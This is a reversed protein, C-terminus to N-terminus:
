KVLKGRERGSVRKEANERLKKLGYYDTYQFKELFKGNEDVMAYAICDREWGPVGYDIEYYRYPKLKWSVEAVGNIFPEVSIGYGESLNRVVESSLLNPEVDEHTIVLQGGKVDIILSRAEAHSGLADPGETREDTTTNIKRFKLMKDLTKLIRRM